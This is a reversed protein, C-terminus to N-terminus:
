LSDWGELLVSVARIWGDHRTRVVVGDFRRHARACRWGSAPWGQRVNDHLRVVAGEDKRANQESLGSYLSCSLEKGALAVERGACM